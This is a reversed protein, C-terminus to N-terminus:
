RRRQVLIDWVDKNGVHGTHAKAPNAILGLWRPTNRVYVNVVKVGCVAPVRYTLVDSPDSFAIIQRPRDRREAAAMDGSPRAAWGMLASFPSAATEPPALSKEGGTVADPSSPIGKLRGLELLAVQNAFFYLNDSRDMVYNVNDGGSAMADLVAFSGLSEAMVVYSDDTGGGKRAFEFAKQMAQNVYFRMPGGAIVADALGWNMIQQKLSRNGLAAHGSAPTALVRRDEADLWDHPADKDLGCRGLGKRDDGSLDHEPVLLFKCKLPFLLPWWNVEDLIVRAGDDRRLQSRVVFPRSAEWDAEDKWIPKELYTAVPRPELDFFTPAATQSTFHLRQEMLRLLPKSAGRDFARMGHVFVIHVTKGPAILDALSATEDLSDPGAKVPRAFARGGVLLILAAAAAALLMLKVM